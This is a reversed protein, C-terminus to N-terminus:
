PLGEYIGFLFIDAELPSYSLEVKNLADNVGLILATGGFDIKRYYANYYYNNIKENLLFDRYSLYNLNFHADPNLKQEM